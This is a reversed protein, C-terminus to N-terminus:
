LFPRVETRRHCRRSGETHAPDPSGDDIVSVLSQM